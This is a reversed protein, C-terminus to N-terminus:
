MVTSIMEEGKRSCQRCGKCCDPIGCDELSWESCSVDVCHRWETCLLSITLLHACVLKDGVIIHSDVGANPFM